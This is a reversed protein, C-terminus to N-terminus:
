RSALSLSHHWIWKLTVATISPFPSRRDGTRPCPSDRSLLRIILVVIGCRELVPMALPAVGGGPTFALFTNRMFWLNDKPSSEVSASSATAPHRQPVYCEFGVHNAPGATMMYHTPIAALNQLVHYLNTRVKGRTSMFLSLTPQHYTILFDGCSCLSALLWGNGTRLVVTALAIRSVRSIPHHREILYSGYILVSPYGLIRTSLFCEVDWYVPPSDPTGDYGTLLVIHLPTRPPTAAARQIGKIHM